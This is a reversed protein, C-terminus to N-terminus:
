QVPTESYKYIPEFKNKSASQITLPILPGFFTLGLLFEGLGRLWNLGGHILNELSKNALEGWMQDNPRVMKGILSLLGIVVSAVIQVQSVLTRLAGSFIAVIPISGAINFGKEISTFNKSVEM